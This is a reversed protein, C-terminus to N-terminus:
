KATECSQNKVLWGSQNKGPGENGRQMTLVCKKDMVVANVTATDGDIVSNEVSTYIAALYESALAEAAAASGPKLTANSTEAIRYGMYCFMAAIGGLVFLAYIKNVPTADKNFFNGM